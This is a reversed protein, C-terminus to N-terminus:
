RGSGGPVRRGATPGARGLLFRCHPARPRHAHRLERRSSTVFPGSAPEPGYAPPSAPTLDGPGDGGAGRRRLQAHVPRVPAAPGDAARGGGPLSRGPGPLGGRGALAGPRGSRARRRDQVGGPDVSRWMPVPRGYPREGRARRGAPQVPDRGAAPRRYGDGPVPAARPLAGPAPPEPRRRRGTPPRQHPWVGPRPGGGLARLRRRPLALRGPGRAGALRDGVGACPPPGGSAGRAVGAAAAAPGAGPAARGGGRDGAGGAGLWPPPLPTERPALEAPGPARAACEHGPEYVTCAVPTEGVYLDLQHVRDGAEDYALGTDALGLCEPGAFQGLWGGLKGPRGDQKLGICGSVLLLERARTAAVYCLRNSEAADQDADSAQGLRYAAPLAGEEDKLPLLVGLRADALVGSSGRGGYTADGIVVVPFELGKAAHVTMIQVAGEATARAEGERAGADRLGRVYELFEGVGVIDSVHADALLKAINRAGRASAARQSQGVQLLAARYATADVFAKLVDAVPSRGVQEHLEAILAAAREARPGDDGPLQAGSARLADWLSGRESREGRAACLRYLAADSLALAPSRLLGALALDDTPDALAQLANLVDRVEPRDYFGRGAVTLFPVGARELADEYACFSTSARCLIAIDGYGLPYVQEERVIQAGSAVLAALRAALADAARDLAGSSKSGVTLHLEIFAPGFGAGPEERHHTLPAFPEVWPRAPDGAGLVPRLLDNLGQVLARHARYSTALDWVRGQEAIRARETRFVTVDAGRFRYISQKADGVIFLKGSGGNLFAVLDRQDGNTDQFEDVLLAQVEAQWHALVAPRDRLLARAGIELDDYDLARRERKLAAYRENACACVAGLAPLARALAEDQATLALDLLASQSRWLDRLTRLADKVAALQTSGGPWSAARGGALSLDRLRALAALRDPLPGVADHLAALAARRQAETLDDSNAACHDHLVAVAEAWAPRAQLAALAQEQRQRLEQEWRALIDAPSRASMEAAAAPQQLLADLTGQLGGEGLLTFLAVAEGDDAAWALAEALAQSRLINGQGEELVEFRPDPGAETPHARLIEACLSHITGIRAADLATYLQQWREREADALDPRALYRRLEDRVRSRMERAAKRTFTIAVVARLPLGEALLALYRAVLTRTKGAGAGATVAVDGGRAEIAPWQEASPATQVVIPHRM